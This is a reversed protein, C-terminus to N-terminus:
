SLYRLLTRLRDAYSNGAKVVRNYGCEAIKKRAACNAAYFRTKDLMEDPSSFFAADQGERFIEEHDVTREALLFAGCAPTEYTRMVHGDANAKRVLCLAVKTGGLALRYDRGYAMGLHRRKLAPTFGYYGGYLGVRLDEAQALPNLYPVRDRDCGGLFAIDSGFRAWEAENAPQEPFHLTADYGFALYCVSGRCYRSLEPITARRPTAVLDWYPLSEQVYPPSVAPNFPNDTSYMAFRASSRARMEQILDGGLCGGVALVLDPDFASAARKMLSRFRGYGSPVGGGYPRRLWRFPKRDLFTYASAPDVVRVEHGLSELARRFSAGLHPVREIGALLVRM